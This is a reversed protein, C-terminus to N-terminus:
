LGAVPSSRPSGSRFGKGNSAKGLAKSISSAEFLIMREAEPHRPTKASGPVPSRWAEQAVEFSGSSESEADMEGAEVTMAADIALTKPSARRLLSFFGRTRNPM